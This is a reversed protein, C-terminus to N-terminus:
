PTTTTAVPAVPAPAVVTPQAGHVLDAELDATLKFLIRSGKETGSDFRIGSFIARKINKNSAVQNSQVALANFNKAIGDLDIKATGDGAISLRLNTFQVNQLTLSELEDFFRSLTIHNALLQESANFRDKLRVYEKLTEAVVAEQEKKLEAAKTDEIHMLFQSYGLVLGSAVVAFAAIGISVLFFLNNAFSM